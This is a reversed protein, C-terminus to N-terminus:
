PNRRGDDKMLTRIVSRILEPDAPKQVHADFGSIRSMIRDPPEAHATLAVLYVESASPLARIQQALAYGSMTPMALDLFAIHPRFERVAAAAQLPDALFRTEHGDAKLILGLSLGIDANDDVLLIRLKEGSILTSAM